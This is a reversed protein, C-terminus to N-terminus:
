PKLGLEKLIFEVAPTPDDLGHPHHKFGPKVILHMKGGLEEYRKKLIVTNEPYPVVEDADGCIHLLPVKAKAM